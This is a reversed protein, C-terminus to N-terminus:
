QIRNSISKEVGSDTNYKIHLHAPLLLLLFLWRQRKESM